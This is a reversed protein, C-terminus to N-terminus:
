YKEHAAEEATVSDPVHGCGTFRAVVFLALMMAILWAGGRDPKSM